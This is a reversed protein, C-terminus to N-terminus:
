SLMEVFAGVRTLLQGTPKGAQFTGDIFLNPIGAKKLFERQIERTMGMVNCGVYGYLLVGKAGVREVERKLSANKLEASMANSNTNSYAFRAMAEFPPLSEDFKKTFNNASMWGLIAGNNSDVAHYIGYEQGRGGLWVLPIVNLNNEFEPSDGRLEAELENLIDEYLEPNGYYHGIGTLLYQTALSKMYLPKQIRLEFINQITAALRNYRRLEAAIKEEDPEKGNLLFKSLLYLERQYFKLKEEFINEPMDKAIYLNDIFHVEFGEKRILEAAEVMAECVGVDQVVRKIPGNRRLYWEGLLSNVMPCAERPAM